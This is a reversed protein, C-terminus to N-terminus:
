IKELIKLVESPTVISTQSYKRSRFATLAKEHARSKKGVLEFRFDVKSEKFEYKKFIRYVHSKILNMNGPYEIDIVLMGELKYRKILLYILCAFTKYIYSKLKKIATFYQQIKRKAVPKLYLYNRSGNSFAVVTPVSTNELKGSQDVEYSM